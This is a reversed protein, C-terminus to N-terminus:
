KWATLINGQWSLIEFLNCYDLGIWNSGSQSLSEMHSSWERKSAVRTMELSRYTSFCKLILILLIPIYCSLYYIQVTWTYTGGRPNRGSQVHYNHHSSETHRHNEEWPLDSLRESTSINTLNNIFSKFMRLCDLLLVSMMYEQSWESITLKLLFLTAELKIYMPSIYCCLKKDLLLM